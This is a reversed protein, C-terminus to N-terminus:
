KSTYWALDNSLQQNQALATYLQSKLNRVVECSVSNDLQRKLKENEMKLKVIENVLEMLHETQATM